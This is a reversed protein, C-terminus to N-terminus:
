KRFPKYHAVDAFALLERDGRSDGYATLEYEERDPFRATLRSVKEQGYCNNGTFHGTIIGGATELETTLFVIGDCGKFFPRVWISPSASVVCVTDGDDLAAKIAAMAKPRIIDARKNAFDEAKAALETERMGGFIYACLQRKLKNNSYLGAKMLLLLHIHTIIWAYLRGSGSVHRIFEILSDKATITGDFDFAHIKNKSM